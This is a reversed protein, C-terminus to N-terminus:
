NNEDIIKIIIDKIKKSAKGDGFHDNQKKTPNFDITANLIKRKETGVLINWGDEVTEIWETNERFTICPVKLLYAEKQIGGSDTFVKNANKELCLFDIYGVPQILLINEKIKNELKHNKIFKQTRPHVPFIIKGEVQSLAEIINSLNKINNTNSERHITTLFYERKKINLKEIINSKEAIKINNLLVDYMVDGTIHVGNTIGENKLNEFANVTPAFLVKSCHDTLIRNIEEPMSKDFSRLGAEIHGIPIHLKVAALAGALTSNTDGYVLVFDPKEKFLVKEIEKMMDGIQEGQTSSGIGLNYDPKPINLQDFFLQSMEYDYHQGTHIIVEDFIKRLELSVPKSKIFQPRAGVISAIKMKGNGQINENINRRTKEL